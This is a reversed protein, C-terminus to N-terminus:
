GDPQTEKLQLDGNTYRAKSKTRESRNLTKYKM